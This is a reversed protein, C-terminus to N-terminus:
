SKNVPNNGRLMLNVSGLHIATPLAKDVIPLRRGLLHEFYAADGNCVDRLFCADCVIGDLGDQGYDALCDPIAADIQERTMSHPKGCNPCLGASLAENM